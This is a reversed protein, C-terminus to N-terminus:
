LEWFRPTITMATIEGDFTVESDGQVLQLYDVSINDYADTIVANNNADTGDLAVNERECDIVATNFTGDITLIIDGIQINSPSSGAYPRYPLATTGKNLMINRYHCNWAGVPMPRTFILMVYGCDTPTKFKLLIEKWATPDASSSVTQNVIGTIKNYGSAQAFVAVIMGYGLAEAKLTYNTNPDVAMVYGVGYDTGVAGSTVNFSLTDGSVSVNTVKSTGSVKIRESGDDTAIVYQSDMNPILASLETTGFDPKSTRYQTRDTLKLLSRAGSGTLEIIPKAIHNTTNTITDGSAVEIPRRVLFREPRCRFTVTCMAAEELITEIDVPGVFYALRYYEPEWDDELKCYGDQFLWDAITRADAQADDLMFIEYDQEYEEYADEMVVINGNRGPTSYSNYKRRPRNLSPVKSVVIGLTDSAVGNWTIVGNAM